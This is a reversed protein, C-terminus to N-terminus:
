SATATLNVQVDGGGTWSSVQVATANGIRFTVAQGEYNIGAQPVPIDIKYTSAGYVSPTTATYAYGLIIVTIVTGNPVNAGNLSVTGHFRCPPGGGPPTAIPPPTKLPTPTPVPTPTPSPTPPVPTPTPTLTPTPTPSPTVYVTKTCGVVGAALALVLLPVLVVAIKRM